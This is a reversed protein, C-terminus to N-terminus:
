DEEEEVARVAAHHAEAKELVEDHGHDEAYHDTEADLERVDLVGTCAFNEAPVDRGAGNNLTVADVEGAADETGCDHWM